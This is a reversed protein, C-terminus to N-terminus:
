SVKVPRRSLLQELNNWTTGIMPYCRIVDPEGAGIRYIKEREDMERERKEENNVITSMVWSWLRLLVIVCRSTTLKKVPM